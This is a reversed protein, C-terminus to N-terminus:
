NRIPQELSLIMEENLLLDPWRQRIADPLYEMHADIDERTMKKNDINPIPFIETRFMNNVYEMAMEMDADEPLPIIDQYIEEAGTRVLMKYFPEDAFIIAPGSEQQWNMAGVILNILGGEGLPLNDKLGIHYGVRHRM